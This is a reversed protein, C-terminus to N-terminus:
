DGLEGLDTSLWVDEDWLVRFESLGNVDFVMPNNIPPGGFLQTSPKACMHLVIEYSIVVIKLIYSIQFM